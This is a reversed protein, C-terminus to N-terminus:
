NLKLNRKEDLYLEYCDRRITTRTPVFLLPQCIKMSRRYGESDVFKFPLEDIILMETISRRAKEQNIKGVQLCVKSEEIEVDNSTNLELHTQTNDEKCLGRLKGDTDKYTGQIKDCRGFPGLCSSVQDSPTVNM